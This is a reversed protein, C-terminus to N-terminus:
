QGSIALLDDMWYSSGLALDAAPPHASDQPPGQQQHGPSQTQAMYASAPSLLLPVNKAKITHFNCKM